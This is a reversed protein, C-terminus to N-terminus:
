FGSVVLSRALDQRTRNEADGGDPARRGPHDNPIPPHPDEPVSRDRRSRDGRSRARAVRRPTAGRGGPCEPFPRADDGHGPRDHNSASRRRDQADLRPGDRIGGANPRNLDDRGRSRRRAVPPPVDRRPPHGNRVPGM